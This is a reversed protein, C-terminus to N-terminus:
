SYKTSTNSALSLRSISGHHIYRRHKPVNTARREITKMVETMYTRKSKVTKPNQQHILRIVEECTLCCGFSKGFVAVFLNRLNEGHLELDVIWM